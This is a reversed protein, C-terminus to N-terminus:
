CACGDADEQRTKPKVDRVRIADSCFVSWAGWGTLLCWAARFDLWPWVCRDHDDDGEPSRMNKLLEGVLASVPFIPLM